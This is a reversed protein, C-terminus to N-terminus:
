EAPESEVDPRTVTIAPDAFALSPLPTKERRLDVIEVELPPHVSAAEADTLLGRALLAAEANHLIQEQMLVFARGGDFYSKASNWTIELDPRIQLTFDDKGVGLLQGILDRSLDSIAVGLWDACDSSSHVGRSYDRTVTRSFHVPNEGPALLEADASPQVSLRYAGVPPWNQRPAGPSAGCCSSAGGSGWGQGPSLVHITAYMSIASLLRAAFGGPPNAALLDAATLWDTRSKANDMVDFLAGRADEGSRALLILTSAPFKTYLGALLDPAVDANLQILTDLVVLFARDDDSWDSSGLAASGEYNELADRLLPIESEQRDRGIWYAAWARQGPDGNLLWQPTLAFADASSLQEFDPAGPRQGSAYSVVALVTVALLPLRSTTM